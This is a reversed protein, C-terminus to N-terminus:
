GLGHCTFVFSLWFLFAVRQSDAKFAKNHSKECHDCKLSIFWRIFRLDITEETIISGMLDLQMNSRIHIKIVEAHIGILKEQYIVQLAMLEGVM